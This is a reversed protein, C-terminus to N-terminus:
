RNELCRTPGRVSTVVKGGVTIELKGYMIM